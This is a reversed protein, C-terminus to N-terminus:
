SKAELAEIRAKAEALAAVLLPIVDTYGLLLKGDWASPLESNGQHLTVAEPLVAHVSQASLFSRSVTDPDNLYRGTGTKIQSVKELAGSFPTFATKMTEDSLSNWTGGGDNLIVGGTRCIVSFSTPTGSGINSNIGSVGFSAVIGFGSTTYGTASGGDSFGGAATVLGSVGVTGTVALKNGGLVAGNVSVSSPTINGTVSAAAATASGAAATASNASATASAASSTASAAAAGASTSAASASAAAATASSGAATASAAASISAAATATFDSQAFSMMQFNMGDYQVWVLAGALIDNAALDAGTQRRVPKVGLGSVNVTTAGTNTNLAIFSFRSGAVYSAAANAPTLVYANAVGSDICYALRDQTLAVASPIGDFGVIIADFIANLAEARATQLRPLPTYGSFYPNTM